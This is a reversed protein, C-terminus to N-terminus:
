HRWDRGVEADYLRAADHLAAIAETKHDWTGRFEAPLIYGAYAKWGDAARYVEGIRPGGTSTRVITTGTSPGFMPGVWERHDLSLETPTM